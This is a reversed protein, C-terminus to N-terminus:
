DSNEPYLIDNVELMLAAEHLAHKVAEFESAEFCLQIERRCTNIVMRATGDPFTYARQGFNLERFSSSFELFDDPRFNLMMTNFRFGIHGCNFHIISCDNDAYLTRTDSSSM